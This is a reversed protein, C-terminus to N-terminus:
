PMAGDAAEAAIAALGKTMTGVAPDAGIAAAHRTVIWHPENYGLWTKGEADQWVLIKLPLDIGITQKAQMLPTGVAPNGFMLVVTPRLELGVKAAAAAHDIRAMVAMGRAAVAAVVRDVTEAPPHRSALITMGEVTM